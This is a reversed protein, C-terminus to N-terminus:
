GAGSAGAAFLPRSARAARSPRRAADREDASASAAIAKPSWDAISQVQNTGPGAAIANTLAPITAPVPVRPPPPRAPQASDGGRRASLRESGAPGRAHRARPPPMSAATSTAQAMQCGSAESRATCSASSRDTLPPVLRREVLALVRGVGIRQGGRREEGAGRDLDAAPRSAAAASVRSRATSLKGPSGSVQSLQRPELEVGEVPRSLREVGQAAREVQIGERRQPAREVEGRLRCLSHHVPLGRPLDTRGPRSRSCRPGTSAAGLACRVGRRGARGQTLPPHLLAPPALAPRIPARIGPRGPEAGHAPRSGPDDPGPRGRAAARAAARVRVAARRARARDDRGCPSTSARTPSPCRPMPSSSWAAADPHRRGARELAVPSVDALTLEEARLEGSLRGDGCGLDLAREVPGLARVFAATRTPPAGDADAVLEWLEDDYRSAM